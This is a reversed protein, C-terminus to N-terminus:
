PSHQPWAANPRGAVTGDGTFLGRNKLVQDRVFLDFVVLAVGVVGGLFLNILGIVVYGALGEFIQPVAQDRRAILPATKVRTWGAYLNWAGAIIGFVSIVQLAGLIMWGIGSWRTYESVRRVVVVDNPMTYLPPPGSLPSTHSTWAHGDWYRLQPLGQPDPHWGAPVAPPRPVYTPVSHGVNADASALPGGGSSVSKSPRAVGSSPTVRPRHTCHGPHLARLAPDVLKGCMRCHGGADYGGDSAM